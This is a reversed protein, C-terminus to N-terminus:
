FCYKLEVIADQLIIDDNLCIPPRFFKAKGAGALAALVRCSSGQHSLHSRAALGRRAVRQDRARGRLRKVDARHPFCGSRTLARNSDAPTRRAPL